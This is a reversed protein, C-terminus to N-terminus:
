FVDKLRGDGDSVKVFSTVCSTLTTLGGLFSLIIGVGLGVSFLITTRRSTAGVGVLTITYSVGGLGSYNVKFCTDRM